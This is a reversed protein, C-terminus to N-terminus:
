KGLRFPDQYSEPIGAQEWFHYGKPRPGVACCGFTSKLSQSFSGFLPGAGWSTGYHGWILRCDCASPVVRIRVM